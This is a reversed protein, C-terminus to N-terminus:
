VELTTCGNDSDMDVVIEDCCVSVRYGNFLEGNDEERM